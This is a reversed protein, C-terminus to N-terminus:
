FLSLQEQYYREQYANSIDKMKYLLGLKKCTKRFTEGLEKQNPALCVYDYGYTSHYKAKLNPYYRDLQKYFYERQGDRITLGFGPFVFKAGCEKATELLLIMDAVSDTIWPLTPTFLIGVFVGAKALTDIAQFRKSSVPANPEIIKSISDHPTTITIKVLAPSHKSISKLIDADRTVLDSKTAIAVGFRYRDILKLAKRSLELEKEYPNYPDSMSGTAIVGTKRRNRLDNNIIEIANEKARVKHFDEIQYCSSRSDCYICGHNCGKYINMNFHTNFWQDLGKPYVLGKAPIYEISM